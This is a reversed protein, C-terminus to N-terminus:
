SLSDIAEVIKKVTETMDPIAKVVDRANVLMGRIFAADYEITIRVSGERKPAEVSSYQEKM